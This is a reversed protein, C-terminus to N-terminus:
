IIGFTGFTLLSASVFAFAFCRKTPLFSEKHKQHITNFFFFYYYNGWTSGGGCM